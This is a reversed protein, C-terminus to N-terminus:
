VPDVDKADLHSISSARCKRSFVGEAFSAAVDELCVKALSVKPATKAPCSGVDHSSSALHM